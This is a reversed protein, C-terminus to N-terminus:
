TKVSSREDELNRGVLLSGFFSMDGSRAASNIECSENAAGLNVNEGNLFRVVVFLVGTSACGAATGGSNSGGVAMGGGILVFDRVVKLVKKTGAVGVDDDPVRLSSSVTGLGILLLSLLFLGHFM